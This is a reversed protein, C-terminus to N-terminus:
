IIVPSQDELNINEKDEVRSPIYNGAPVIIKVPRINLRDQKELKQITNQPKL